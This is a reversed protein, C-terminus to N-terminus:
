MIENIEHCFEIIINLLELLFSSCRQVVYMCNEKMEKKEMKM